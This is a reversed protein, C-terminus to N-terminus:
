APGTPYSSRVVLMTGWRQKRLGRGTTGVVAPRESVCELEIGEARLREYDDRLMLVYQVGPQDFFARVDDVSELRSLPRGIYYRLSFRWKDVRYLGVRDTEGLRARLDSGLEATPRTKELVPLAVAVVTSYVVLLVVSVAMFLRPSVAHRKLLTFGVLVGGLGFSLPVIAATPPLELGLDFLTVAGVAGLVVLVLGLLGVAWRAGINDRATAVDTRSVSFSLWARAALLCCAPAAPYLYRDVKFRALTFFVFVVAIWAWLLVEELGPKSASRWRRLADVGGGLMLLSWPFFGALLTSVYL